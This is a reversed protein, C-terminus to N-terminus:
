EYYGRLYEKEYDTLNYWGKKAFKPLKEGKKVVYIKRLLRVAKQNM